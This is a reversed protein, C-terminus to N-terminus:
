TGPAEWKEENGSSLFAINPLLVLSAHGHEDEQPEGDLWLRLTHEKGQEQAHVQDCHQLVQEDDPKDPQVRAEM